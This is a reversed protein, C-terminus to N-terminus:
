TAGRLALWAVLQDITQVAVAQMTQDTVSSWGDPSTTPTSEQGQIRHVRNGEPDVVDWVYIVTTRGGEAFASFYGRMALNGTQGAPVLTLGVEAARAQLQQSLITATAEPAGVVPAFQVSVDRAPNSPRPSLMASPEFVSAPGTCGAIGLCSAALAASLTSRNM